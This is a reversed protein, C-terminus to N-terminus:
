YPCSLPHIGPHFFSLVRRKDDKKSGKEKNMNEDLVRGKDM